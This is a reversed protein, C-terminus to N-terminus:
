DKHYPAFCASILVVIAIQWWEYGQGIMYVTAIVTTSGILGIGIGVGNM